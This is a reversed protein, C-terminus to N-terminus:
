QPPSLDAKKFQLISNIFCEHKERTDLIEGTAKIKYCLQEQDYRLFRHIYYHDDISILIVDKHNETRYSWHHHNYGDGPRMESCAVGAKYKEPYRSHYSRIYRKKDEKSQRRLGLRYRKKGKARHREAEKEVWSPDTQMLKKRRLESDNRTCEKCKNLHGDGMQKHPYFDELPKEIGCKFCKKM